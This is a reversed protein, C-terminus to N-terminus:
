DEYKIVLEINENSEKEQKLQEEKIRMYELDKSEILKGLTKNAYILAQTDGSKAKKVLENRLSLALINRNEKLLEKIQKGFKNKCERKLTSESIKTLKVLDDTTAGLQMYNEIEEWNIEIKPRAM